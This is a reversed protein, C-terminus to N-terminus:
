EDFLTQKPRAQQPNLDFLNPYAKSSEESAAEPEPGNEPEVPMGFQLQVAPPAPQVQPPPNPQGMQGGSFSGFGALLGQLQAYCKEVKELEAIRDSSQRYQEEAQLCREKWVQIEEELKVFKDSFEKKETEERNLDSQLQAASEQLAAHLGSLEQVQLNLEEVKDSLLAAERVKKALHQHAEDLLQQNEQQRAEHLALEQLMQERQTELAANNHMSQTLRDQLQQQEVEMVEKDRELREKATQFKDCESELLENKIILLDLQDNLRNKEELLRKLQSELHTNRNKLASLKEDAHIKNAKEFEMLSKTREKLAALEQHEKDFARQQQHLAKLTTMKETVAECYRNELEKLDRAGSALLQKIVNLEERCASLTDQLKTNEQNAAGLAQQMDNTKSLQQEYAQRQGDVARKLNDFQKYLANLEGRLEFGAQSETNLKQELEQRQQKLEQNETKLILLQGESDQIAEALQTKGLQLEEVRHQLFQVARELQQAHQRSEALASQQSEKEKELQKVTTQEKDLAEQLWTKQEIAKKATYEYHHLELIRKDKEKLLSSLKELNQRLQAPQDDSSLSKQPSIQVLSRPTKARCVIQKFNEMLHGPDMQVLPQNKFRLSSLSATHQPQDAQIGSDAAPKSKTSRALLKLMVLMKKKNKHDLKNM